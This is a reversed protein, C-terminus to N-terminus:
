IGLKGFDIHKIGQEVDNIDVRFYEETTQSLTHGLIKSVVEKKTGYHIWLQANTHRATRNSIEKNINARAAIIKLNRNYAQSEIFYKSDFLMSDNKDQCSYKALIIAANPFKYIPILTQNDNKNRLAMLYMGIGDKKVLQTKKILGLDNYYLASYIQFLFIDRDRELNKEVIKFKLNTIRKIEELELFTRKTDSWTIKTDAFLFRTQKMELFSEKEALNVLKKFKDFYSKITNGKLGQKMELFQKFKGVFDPTLQAFEIKPNFKNLHALFSKYKKLTGEELKDSLKKIYSSVYKNFSVTKDKNGLIETKIISLSLPNKQLYYRKVVEQIRHIYDSITCNIEFSYPNQVKVFEVGHNKFNWDSEAIKQPIPIKIFISNRELTVRM